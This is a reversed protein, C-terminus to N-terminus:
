RRATNEANIPLRKETLQLAQEVIELVDKPANMDRLIQLHKRLMEIRERITAETVPSAPAHNMTAGM